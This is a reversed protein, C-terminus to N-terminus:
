LALAADMAPGDGAVREALREVRAGVGDPLQLYAAPDDLGWAPALPRGAVERLHAEVSYVTGAAIARPAHLSGHVDRGIVPGPFRIAAPRGGAFILANGSMVMEITHPLPEGRLDEALTIAGRKAALK